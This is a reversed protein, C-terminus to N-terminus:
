NGDHTVEMFLPRGKPDVLSTQVKRAGFFIGHIKEVHEGVRDRNTDNYGCGPIRCDWTDYGNWQAGPKIVDSPETLVEEGRLDHVM